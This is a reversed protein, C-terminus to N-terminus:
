ERHARTRNYVFTALPAVIAAMLTAVGATDKGESVLYFGVGLATMVVIFAFIQGLITVWRIAQNNKRRDEGNQEAM